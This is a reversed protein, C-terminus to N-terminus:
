IFPHTYNKELLVTTQPHGKYESPDLSWGALDKPLGKIGTVKKM